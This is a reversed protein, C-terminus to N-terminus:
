DLYGRIPSSASFSLYQEPYQMRMNLSQRYSLDAWERMHELCTGRSEADWDAERFEIYDSYPRFRERTADPPGGDNYWFIARHGDGLRQTVLFSELAVDNQPHWPGHWYFHFIFGNDPVPFVPCGSKLYNEEWNLIPISFSTINNQLIYDWSCRSPNVGPAWQAPTLNHPAFFRAVDKTFTSPKRHNPIGPKPYPSSFISLMGEGKSVHRLIYLLVFTAFFLTLNRRPSIYRSSFQATM